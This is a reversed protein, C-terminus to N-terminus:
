VWARSAMALKMKVRSKLAKGNRIKMMIFAPATAHVGLHDHAADARGARGMEAMPFSRQLAPHLQLFGALAEIGDDVPVRQGGCVLVHAIDFAVYALHEKVQQGHADVRFSAHYVQLRGDLFNGFEVQQQAHHGGQAPQFPYRGELFLLRLQWSRSMLVM